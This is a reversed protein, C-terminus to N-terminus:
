KLDIRMLWQALSDEVFGAEEFVGEYLGEPITPSIRWTKGPFRTGLAGLLATLDEREGAFGRLGVTPLSTDTTVTHASRWRWGGNPAVVSAISEAAQQWSWSKGESLMALAVQRPEVEELDADSKGAPDKGIYGRLRCVRQFGASSYLREAADNGIIVELEMAADQRERAQLVVQQLLWKGVGSGRKEPAVAFAALRSNRGRRAILSLAIPDLSPTADDLAVASHWFDVSDNRFMAVAFEVPVQFPVIYGEYCRNLMNSLEVLSYESARRISPM